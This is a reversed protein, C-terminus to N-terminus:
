RKRFLGKLDDAATSSNIYGLTWVGSQNQIVDTVKHTARTSTDLTITSLKYVEPYGCYEQAKVPAVGLLALLLLGNFGFRVNNFWASNLSYSKMWNLKVFITDCTTGDVLFLTLLCNLADFLEIHQALLTWWSLWFRKRM